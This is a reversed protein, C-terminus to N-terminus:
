RPLFYLFLCLVNALPLTGFRELEYLQTQSAQATEWVTRRCDTFSHDTEGRERKKKRSTCQKLLKSNNMYEMRISRINPGHVGSIGREAAFLLDEALALRLEEELHSDTLGEPPSTRTFTGSSSPSLRARRSTVTCSVTYVRLGIATWKIIPPVVELM